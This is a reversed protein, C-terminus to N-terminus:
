ILGNKKLNEEVQEIFVKAAASDACFLGWLYKKNKKLNMAGKSQYYPDQFRYIGNIEEMKMGKKQLFENYKAIVEDGAAPDGTELIFLQYDQGNRVYDAIFASHLFTHGLFDLNIYKESNSKKGEGPFCSVVPPFNVADGLNESIARATSTLVERDKDGLDFGAIKVYYPGKLFNLVGKEYYGQTGIDLFNGETPKEQTYIGFGNRTNSHRYVDVAISSKQTNEDTLTALQQFDYSLFVEAAGDIYEFLNDPTYVAPNGKKTWGDMDPFITTLQIEGAHLSPGACLWGICMIIIIIFRKM